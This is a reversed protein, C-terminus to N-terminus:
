GDTLKPQKGQLKRRACAIAMGERTPMRSADAEGLVFSDPLPFPSPEGDLGFQHGM